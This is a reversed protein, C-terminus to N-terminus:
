LTKTMFVRSTGPPECPVRGFERWGRKEYFGPAQFSLTYLVGAKCGRRKAEAEM